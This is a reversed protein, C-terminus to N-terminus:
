LLVKDSSIFAMQTIAQQTVKNLTMLLRSSPDLKLVVNPRRRFMHYNASNVKESVIEHFM